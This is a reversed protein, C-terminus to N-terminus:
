RVPLLNVNLCFTSLVSCPRAGGTPDSAFRGTARRGVTRGRRHQKERLPLTCSLHAIRTLNGDADNQRTAYNPWNEGRRRTALGRHLPLVHLDQPSPVYRARTRHAEFREAAIAAARQSDM